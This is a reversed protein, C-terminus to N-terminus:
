RFKNALSSSSLHRVSTIEALEKVESKHSRGVSEVFKDYFSVAACFLFNM